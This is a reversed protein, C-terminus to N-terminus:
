VREAMHSWQGAGMRSEAYSVGRLGTLCHRRYARIGAVSISFEEALWHEDDNIAELKAFEEPEILLRAAYADAQREAPDTSHMGGCKHGYYAHGCEHALVWRTQASTMGIRVVIIRRGPAFYGLLNPEDDIPAFHVGVGLTGAHHILDGLM